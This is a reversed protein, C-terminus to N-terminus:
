LWELHLEGGDAMFSLASFKRNNGKLGYQIGINNLKRLVSM